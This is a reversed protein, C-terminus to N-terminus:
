EKSAEEKKPEGAATRKIGTARRKPGWEAQPNMPFRKVKGLKAQHSRVSDAISFDVTTTSTKSLIKDAPSDKSIKPSRGQREVWARMIDWVFSDPANTKIASPEKHYGSVRYDANVLASKIEILPLSSANVARSLEPLKYYLPADPLEDLCSTLLGALRDKTSIHPFSPLFDLCDKVFETDHLPAIWLPGAIKFPGGTQSCVSGVGDLRGPQYVTGKKGGMKGLPVIHFSPCQASQYLQGLQLSLGNVGAKSDRVTVFVRVYFDMGVSLLPQIVRGYKAATVAMSYLLIRVALEQLYGAKSLPMAGNYRGFCTEPHSGGLAAMDTCTVNLLGGNAVSQLAADLFPAASGYPDLDIVDWGNGRSNYMIHTADATQIHLGSERRHTAVPIDNSTINRTARTHAAPDLDNVTIHHILPNNTTSTANEEGKSGTNMGCEKWYRMSRLGSAALADLVSLGHFNQATYKEPNRQRKAEQRELFAKKRREAYRSIVLVSLDRNQVQVPNYFVTTEEGADFKM